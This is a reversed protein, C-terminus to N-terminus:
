CAPLLHLHEALQMADITSPCKSRMRKWHVSGPMGHKLMLYRGLSGLLMKQHKQKSLLLDIVLCDGLPNIDFDEHAKDETSLRSCMLVSIGEGDDTFVDICDHEMMWEIWARLKDSERWEQAPHQARIFVEVQEPSVETM